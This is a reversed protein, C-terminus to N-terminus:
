LYKYKVLKEKEKIYLTGDNIAKDIVSKFSKVYDEENEEFDIFTQPNAGGCMPDGHSCLIANKKLRPRIPFCGNIIYGPGVPAKDIIWMVRGLVILEKRNQDTIKVYGSFRTKPLAQPFEIGHKKPM